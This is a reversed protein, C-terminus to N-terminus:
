RLAGKSVVREEIDFAGYRQLLKAVEQPDFTSDREELALVFRDDTARPDPTEPKKGPRLGTVLFFAILTSIGAALVMVEFTVPVFAPLSNWPKGGVNLPWSTATTWYEFWIKFGAGLIALLLTVLPLRSRALGLSEPLGHVPYPTWVDVVKLNRERCARVAALLNEERSFSAVFLRRNM